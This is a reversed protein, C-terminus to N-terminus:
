PRVWGAARAEAESCFWREGKGENIITPGYSASGPVHYIRRGKANINGKIACGDPRIYARQRVGRRWDLATCVRRVLPWPWCSRTRKTAVYDLSYRRYALAYGQRVLLANLDVLRRFLCCHVPQLPRRRHRPMDGSRRWHRNAPVRYGGCWLAM